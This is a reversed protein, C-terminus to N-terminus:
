GRSIRRRLAGAVWQMQPAGLWAQAAFYIGPASWPSWSCRPSGASPVAAHQRGPLEAVLWAPGVMIVSCAVTRLFPALAPEGGRPLGRRLHSVLYIAAVISGAFLGSRARRSPGPRAAPVVAAIGAACVVTQIIMGRLPYTTDKRAYCAYTTVLFLTEGIIAPALGLLSPRSCVRPRRRRRLAGFGIAGALPAPSSRTRPRRRSRGPLGRLGPGTRLHRPVARRAGARDDEVAAAGAVARGPDRRHRDAPLLLEDGAPVGRRGRGGPRRRGAARGAAPGGAGAQVVAPLARRITARVQPDRWGANPVLIIGVRRAGWWQVSAHLLVAGTTGLGLLLLLSVPVQRGSRRGRTCSPWSASSPSRAWTRWPRPPPPWRSAGTLM